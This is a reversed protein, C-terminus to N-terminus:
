INNWDVALRADLADTVPVTLDESEGSKKQKVRLVLQGDEVAVIEAVLRGRGALKVKVERGVNEEWHRLWRIPREIGPSSVELVYNEGLFGVEDLWEELMRSVQTCHDVTIGDGSASDLLDVRVELITRRSSGKRKLDILDFGLNRVREEVEDVLSDDTKMTAFFLAPM